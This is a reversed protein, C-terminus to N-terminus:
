ISAPSIVVVVTVVGGGEVALVEGPDVTLVVTVSAGVVVGNTVVVPCLVTIEVEAPGVSGVM